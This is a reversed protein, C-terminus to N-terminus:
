GETYLTNYGVEINLQPASNYTSDSRSTKAGPCHEKMERMRVKNKKKKKGWYSKVKVSSHLPAKYPNRM